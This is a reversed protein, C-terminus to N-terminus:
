RDPDHHLLPTAKGHLLCLFRRHAHCADLALFFVRWSMEATNAPMAPSELRRSVKLRVAYQQIKQASQKKEAIPPEVGLALALQSWSKIEKNELKRILEFLTYTRFSKGDSRPPSRFGRRLDSLDEPIPITPNCCLIFSVYADEISDQTVETSPLSREPPTSSLQDVSSSSPVAQSPRRSPTSGFIVSPTRWQTTSPSNALLREPFASETPESHSQPAQPSSDTDVIPLSENSQHGSAHGQDHSPHISPENSSFVSTTVTQVMMAPPQAVSARADNLVRTSGREDASSELTSSTFSSEM